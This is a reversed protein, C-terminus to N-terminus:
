KNTVPVQLDFEFFTIEVIEDLEGMFTYLICNINTPYIKPYNPSTFTGHSRGDSSFVVCECASIFCFPVCILSPWETLLQTIIEHWTQANSSYRGGLLDFTVVTKQIRWIKVPMKNHQALNLYLVYVTVEKFMSEQESPEM